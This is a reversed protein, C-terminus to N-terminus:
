SPEGEWYRQRYAAIVATPDLDAVGEDALLSPVTEV